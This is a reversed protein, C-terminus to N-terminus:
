RLLGVRMLHEYRRRTNEIFQSYPQDLKERNCTKCCSVCNDPEYGKSSDLRDIGNKLCLGVLLKVHPHAVPLAGCYHCSSTVLTKYEELTLSVPHAARVQSKWANMEPVWPDAYKRKKNRAVLLEKSLCGCSTSSGRNLLHGAVVKVRGCDCRCRWTTTGNKTRGAPELVVLKGFQRGSLDVLAVGRRSRVLDRNLCGCSKVEGRKLHALTTEKEQGCECRCVV